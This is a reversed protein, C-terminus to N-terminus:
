ESIAREDGAARELKIQERLLNAEKRLDRARDLASRLEHALEASRSLLKQIEEDEPSM